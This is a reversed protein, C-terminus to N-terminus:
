LHIGVRKNFILCILMQPLAPGEALGMEFAWDFTDTIIIGIAKALDHAKWGSLSPKFGPKVM